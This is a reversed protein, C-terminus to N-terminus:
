NARTQVDSMYRCGAAISKGDDSVAVAGSEKLEGMETLEEGKMGKTAAGIPYVRVVGEREAKLKILETVAATDNVPKTNAMCCVSTFGGKAASRTGTAITEKYEFGPERLHSHLDILGPSVLLGTADVVRADGCREPSAGLASIKGDEILLDGKKIGDPLVLDGNQILIKM